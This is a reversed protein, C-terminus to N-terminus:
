LSRSASAELELLQPLTSPLAILHTYSLDDNATSLDADADSREERAGNEKNLYNSFFNYM